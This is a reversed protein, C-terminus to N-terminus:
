KRCYGLLRKRTNEESVTLPTQERHERISGEKVHYFVYDALDNLTIYGQRMVKDRYNSCEHCVQSEYPNLHCKEAARLGAVIHQTFLSLKRNRYGISEEHGKSASWQVVSYNASKSASNANKAKVVSDDGTDFKYLIPVGCEKMEQDNECDADVSKSFLLNSPMPGRDAAFCCDLIILLQTCKMKYLCKRLESVELDDGGNCVLGEGSNSSHGSFYFLFSTEFQNEMKKSFDQLQHLINKATLQLHTDGKNTM